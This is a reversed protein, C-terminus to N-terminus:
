IFPNLPSSPNQYITFSSHHITFSSHYIIFPLHHIINTTYSKLCDHDQFGTQLVAKVFRPHAQLSDANM